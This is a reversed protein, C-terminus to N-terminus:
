CRQSRRLLKDRGRTGGGPSDDDDAARSLDVAVDKAPQRDRDVGVFRWRADDGLVVVSKKHGDEYKRVGYAILGGLLGNSGVAPLGDCILAHAPPRRRSLPLDNPPGRDQIGMVESVIVMARASSVASTLRARM